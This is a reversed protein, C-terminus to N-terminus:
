KRVITFKSEPNMNTPFVRLIKVNDPDVKYLIVFPFKKIPVQRFYKYVLQFLFTNRSLYDMIKKIEFLFSESIKISIKSYWDYGEAIDFKADEEILIQYNSM